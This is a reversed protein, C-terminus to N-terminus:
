YQIYNGNCDYTSYCEKTYHGYKWCRLCRSIQYTQEYESYDDESYDDNHYDIFSDIQSNFPPYSREDKFESNLSFITNPTLCMQIYSGGRVNPIGYRKMCSKVYIDENKPHFMPLVEVISIPLYKKTWEINPQPINEKLQKSSKESRGVYYKGNELKLLYLNINEEKSKENNDQLQNVDQEQQQKEQEIIEVIMEKFSKEDNTKVSEGKEM